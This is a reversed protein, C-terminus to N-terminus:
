LRVGAPKTIVVVRFAREEAWLAALARDEIHWWIVPRRRLRAMQFIKLRRRRNRKREQTFSKIVVRNNRNSM